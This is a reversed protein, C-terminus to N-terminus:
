EATADAQAGAVANPAPAKFKVVKPEVDVVVECDYGNEKCLLDLSRMLPRNRSVFLLGEDEDLCVRVVARFM